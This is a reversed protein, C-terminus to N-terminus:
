HKATQLTRGGERTDAGLESEIQELSRGKTEPVLLLFFAFAAVAIGGYLWFTGAKTITTTLTLFTFSVLFNAAWNAVTAVSMAPGRIKLPYIEAIMLWFVPGLGAAFSAIYVILAALALWGYSHQLTKSAFFIGLTALSLIVGATGALLFVRRGLKDLLLIAVITFVVNTIGIVVTKALAGGAGAGAFSLITPAYYIVTNIGIIQQFIALGLGVILMRRVGPSLLDGLSGEEDAVEEIQDLEEDIDTEDEDRARRLVEDADDRRDEEVLWRPSHPVFFMGVALAVGPVAGLGLMWRWNWTADKLFYNVLYACLIGSTIMLQNFSVLGGRLRKPALESIYLPGVFSAAGVSLGLVFRSGVLEWTTMSLASALAGLVYISGSVVKTWKRSIADALYGSIIAGVMAGLLISGVIAQQGFSGAHLDKKVFLLAGGVVGTDYGFLFGGIGAITALKVIFPNGGRTLEKLFGM